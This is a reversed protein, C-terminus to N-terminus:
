PKAKTLDKLYINRWRISRGLQEEDGDISHVQLAIFGELTMDDEIDSAPVGNLWTKISDGNCIIRYHNWEGHKLAKRAPDNDKQHQLQVMAGRRGEDHIGGTWVRGREADPDIEVQYGHVKGAPVMKERVKGNPSKIKLVTEEEYANSRIQVGSNLTPHIKFELELIFDSYHERTALFTNPTDAVTTGVIAGDEISYIAEGGKIEWNDLDKGNFLAIYGDPAQSSCAIMFCSAMVLAIFHVITSLTPRTTSPEM